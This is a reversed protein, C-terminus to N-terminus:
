FSRLAPSASPRNFARLEVVRIVHTYPIEFRITKDKGGSSFRDELSISKETDAVLVGVAFLHVDASRYHVEVRKGVFSDYRGM